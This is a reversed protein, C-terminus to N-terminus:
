SGWTTRRIGLLSSTALVGGAMGSWAAIAPDQGTAWIVVVVGLALELLDVVIRRALNGPTQRM